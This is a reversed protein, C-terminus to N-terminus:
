KNWYLDRSVTGKFLVFIHIFCVTKLCHKSVFCPQELDPDPRESFDPDTGPDSYADLGM